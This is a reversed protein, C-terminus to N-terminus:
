PLLLRHLKVPQCQMRKLRVRFEALLATKSDAMKEQRKAQAAEILAALEPVTLRDLDFPPKSESM